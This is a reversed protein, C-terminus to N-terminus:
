KWKGQLVLLVDLLKMVDDKFYVFKNRFLKQKKGEQGIIANKPNDLSKKWIKKVDNSM